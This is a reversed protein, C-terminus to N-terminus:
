ITQIIIYFFFFCYILIFFYIFGNLFSTAGTSNFFYTLEKDSRVRFSLLFATYTLFFIPFFKASNSLTRKFALVYIGFVKLMQMLFALKIFLTFIALSSFYTKQSMKKSFFAIAVFVITGIENLTNTTLISNLEINFCFIFHLGSNKIM